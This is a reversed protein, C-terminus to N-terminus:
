CGGLDELHASQHDDVLGEARSEEWNQVLAGVDLDTRSSQFQEERRLDAVLLSSAEVIEM